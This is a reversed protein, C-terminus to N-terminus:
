IKVAALSEIDRSFTSSNVTPGALRTTPLCHRSQLSRAPPRNMKRFTAPPILYKRVFTRTFSQQSDYGYKLGIQFVTEHSELLDYAALELKRDRIYHAINKNTVQYFIRQIHWQSYGAKDAVSKIKLPKDLNGDIWKILSNILMVHREMM